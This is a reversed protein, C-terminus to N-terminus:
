EKGTDMNTNRDTDTNLNANEDTEVMAQLADSANQFFDKIKDEQELVPTKEDIEEAASRVDEVESEQDPFNRQQISEMLDAAEMFTSRIINAHQTSEPDQQLRQASEQFRDRKQSIDADNAPREDALGSLAASLRQIGESTYEHSLGMEPSEEEEEVFTVFENVQTAAAGRYAVDQRETAGMQNDDTRQETETVAAIEPEDTQFFEVMGWVVLLLLLVGVIWPWIPQKNDKREVKIEAM